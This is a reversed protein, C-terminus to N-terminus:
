VSVQGKPEGLGHARANREGSYEWGKSWGYRGSIQFSSVVFRIPTTRTLDSQLKEVPCWKARLHFREVTYGRQREVVGKQSEAEREKESEKGKEREENSDNDQRDQRAIIRTSMYIYVCSIHYYICAIIAMKSVYSSLSLILTFSVSSLFIVCVCVCVCIYFLFLKIAASHFYLQM